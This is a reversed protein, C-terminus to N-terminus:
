RSLPTSIGTPDPWIHIKHGGSLHGEYGLGISDGHIGTYVRFEGGYIIKTKPNLTNHGISGGYRGVYDRFEM